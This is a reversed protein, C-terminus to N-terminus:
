FIGEQIYYFDKAYKFKSIEIKLDSIPFPNLEEIRIFCISDIGLLERKKFLDYYLKGSVFCVNKIKDLSPQDVFLPDSLVPLFRTGIAL